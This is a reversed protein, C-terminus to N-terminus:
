YQTNSLVDDKEYDKIQGSRPEFGRDVASSALVSIMVGGIRNCLLYVPEYILCYIYLVEDDDWQFNVTRAMIYSFSQQNPM